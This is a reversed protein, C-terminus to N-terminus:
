ERVRKVASEVMDDDPKAQPPPRGGGGDFGDGVNISIPARSRAGRSYLGSFPRGYPDYDDFSGGGGRAFPKFNRYHNELLDPDPNAVFRVIDDREIDYIVLVLQQTNSLFGLMSRFGKNSVGDYYTRYESKRGFGSAWELGQGGAMRRLIANAHSWCYDFKQKMNAEEALRKAEQNKGIIIFAYGLLFLVLYFFMGGFAWGDFMDAKILIIIFITAVALAILIIWGKKM